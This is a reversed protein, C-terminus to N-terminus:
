NSWGTNNASCMAQYCMKCLGTRAAYVAEASGGCTSCQLASELEQGLGQEIASLAQEHVDVACKHATYMVYLDDGVVSQHVNINQLVTQMTAVVAHLQNQDDGASAISATAVGIAAVSGAVALSGADCVSVAHQVKSCVVNGSSIMEDSLNCLDALIKIAHISTNQLRKLVDSLAARKKCMLVHRDRQQALLSRTNKIKMLSYLALDNQFEFLPTNPLFIL